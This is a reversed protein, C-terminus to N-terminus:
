CLPKEWFLACGISPDLQYRAFGLKEYTRQATRNHELVELTLKCCGQERAIAEIEGMMAQAVGQGRFAALVTVDHINMLPQCKFTSFGLFANVLGIAREDQWAMVSFSSSMDSLRNPLMKLTNADIAQGGGMVDSAYAQMLSKLASAHIECTFDARRIAIDVM